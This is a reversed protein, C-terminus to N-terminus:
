RHATVEGRANSPTGTTVTTSATAVVFAGNPQVLLGPGTLVTTGDGAAVLISPCPAAPMPCGDLAAQAAAIAEGIGVAGGTVGDPCAAPPLVGLVINVVTTAEAGSVMGDGNCDGPCIARAPASALVLALGVVV